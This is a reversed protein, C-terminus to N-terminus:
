KANTLIAQLQAVSCADPQGPIEALRVFHQRTLRPLLEATAKRGAEDDDLMLVIESFPELLREQHESLSTGMLAVTNVFGAEILRVCGFFGEVIIVRRGNPDWRVRHLNFLVHSKHFGEPLKYRPETNDISRGAYAVLEGAGNHIPIVVRGQMSGKGPFFGLGFYEALGRSVGREVLYPHNPDIGRLTFKLPPNVAPSAPTTPPSPAPAPPSTAPSAPPSRELGFWEQLKFAAERLPVQEMAAVFDLVNGKAQCGFCHFARKELNVRFSPKTDKHFPCRGRLEAGKAILTLGYHALVQDFGVAEKVQRFDVWNGM